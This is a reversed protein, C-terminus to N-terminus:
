NETKTRTNNTTANAANKELQNIFFILEKYNDALYYINMSWDKDKKMLHIYFPQATELVLEIYNPKEGKEYKSVSYVIKFKKALFNQVFNNDRDHSIMESFIGVKGELDTIYKPVM